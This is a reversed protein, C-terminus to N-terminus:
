LYKKYEEEIEKDVSKWYRGLEDLTQGGCIKQLQALMSDYYSSKM